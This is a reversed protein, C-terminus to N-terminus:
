ANFLEASSNYISNVRQVYSAYPEVEEPDHPQPLKEEIPASRKPECCVKRFISLQLLRERMLYFVTLLAVTFCTASVALLIYPWKVPSKELAALPLIQIKTGNPHSVAVVCWLDRLSINQPLPLRSMVTSLGNETKQSTTDKLTTNWTTEWHISAAPRGAAAECVAVSHDQELRISLNPQNWASVYIRTNYGGARYSMDCNYNGEDKISFKPITLYFEGHPGRELTKGDQCTDYETDNVAATIRCSKGQMTINWIVYIMEKWAIKSETCLLTVNTGMEVSMFVSTLNGTTCVALLCVASFIWKYAMVKKKKTACKAGSSHRESEKRAEQGLRQDAVAQVGFSFDQICEHLHRLM